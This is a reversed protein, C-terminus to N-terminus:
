GKNEIIVSNTIWDHFTQNKKNFFLMLYGLLFISSFVKNLSRAGARRLSLREGDKGTVKLGMTSKGISAQKVGSEMIGFYFVGILWGIPTTFFVLNGISFNPKPIPASVIYWLISLPISIILYDIAFALFRSSFSGYTM